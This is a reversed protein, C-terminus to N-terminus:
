GGPDPEPSAVSLPVHVGCHVRRAGRCRARRSAPNGPGRRSDVLEVIEEPSLSSLLRWLPKGARKARPDWLTTVVAGVAMHMIGKEPGPWRLQSDHVPERWVGGPDALLEGADRGVLHDGCRRSPRRPPGRLAEVAAVQGGNGRGITFVFGHGSPRDATGTSLVVDAASYDPNTADSGDLTRSAPFRVDRTQPELIRPM